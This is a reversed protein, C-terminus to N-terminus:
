DQTGQSVAQRVHEVPVTVHTTHGPAAPVVGTIVLTEMIGQIAVIVPEVIEVVLKIEQVTAAALNVVSAELIGSMVAKRVPEVLVTVPTTHDLVIVAAPGPVDKEMTDLTVVKIVNGVPTIVPDTQGRM